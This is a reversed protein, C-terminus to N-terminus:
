IDITVPCERNTYHKKIGYGSMWGRVIVTFFKGTDYGGEGINDWLWTPTPWLCYSPKIADYVEKGVGDQGHHAMQVYDSALESEDNKHLLQRGGELGLDGLFMIRNQPTDVRFVLSTNNLFDDCIEFDPVSLFKLSYGKMQFVEGDKPTIKEIGCRKCIKAIEEDCRDSFSASFKNMKEYPPVKCIIREVKVGYDGHRMMEIFADIHDEHAHTIIWTHVKGGLKSINESLLHADYDFGGDIVTIEGESEIIFSMGIDDKISKLMHLKVM